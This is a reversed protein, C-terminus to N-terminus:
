DTERAPDRYREFWALINNVKDIMQSPRRAIYHSAGPLEILATPVKRYRLAHYLQKAQSPPTRLDDLGVMVLTPTNVEGVLSIPSFRMYDDPNTWPTGPYRTHYYYFWNDANLTKSYWNMVPKIVAAARFRNTKGVIWATMIGGASGGTVYLQEEDIFGEAIVADMGSITDDYDQGPYNHYLLNAFEEGYGTSGRANPFFVVYGAAAYFQFEPSFREGYNSIPGGHNEILLPYKKNEDFDPPLTLWGQIERQDFSSKWRIERTEGLSRQGLLDANLQTLVKMGSNSVLAIEAPFEPRTYTYAITSKKSISFHGGGYPRGISSGGLDVAREEWRGSLNSFGIRSRGQDDYSFYIGSGDANWRFSEIGRDLEPLLDRMETGDANAIRLQTKQYAQRKDAYGLWALHKGDPSFAPDRDPGTQATLITIDGSSLAITYLEDNRYDHQWDESRNGAFVLTEGDPHWAPNYHQFDGQTLQRATGGEAPVLFIHSYTPELYGSGDAEHYLRTTVRPPEAWEAGEPKAPRKGIVAPKEAVEMTFVISEGNPSWRLESPANPLQTIRASTGSALWYVYIEAGNAEDVTRVYAIRTSDPSWYAQSEDGEFNTLKRHQEGDSRILWLNGHRRDDMIDFRMRRYVIHTNDPAIEPTNVWELEFLDLFSFDSFASGAATEEEQAQGFARDAPAALTFAIVVAFTYRVINFPVTWYSM